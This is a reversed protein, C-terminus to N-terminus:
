VDGGIKEFHKTDIRQESSRENFTFVRLAPVGDAHETICEPLSAEAAVWVDDAFHHVQIVRRCLDHADHRRLKFKWTHLRIEPNRKCEIRLAGRRVEEGDGGTEFGACVDRLRLSVRGSHELIKAAFM